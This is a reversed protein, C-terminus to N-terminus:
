TLVGPEDIKAADDCMRNNASKESYFVQYFGLGTWTTNTTSLTGTNGRVRNYTMVDTSPVWIDNV